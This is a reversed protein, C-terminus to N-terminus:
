LKADNLSIALMDVKTTVRNKEYCLSTLVPLPYYRLLMYNVEMMWLFLKTALIKSLKQASTVWKYFSLDHGSTGDGGLFYFPFM